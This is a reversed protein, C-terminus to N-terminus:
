QEVMLEFTLMSEPDNMAVSDCISEVADRIARSCESDTHGALGQDEDAQYIAMRVDPMYLIKLFIDGSYGFICLLDNEMRGFYSDHSLFGSCIQDDGTAETFVHLLCVTLIARTRDNLDWDAVSYDWQETIYNAFTASFHVPENM